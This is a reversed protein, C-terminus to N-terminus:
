KILVGEGVYFPEIEFIDKFENKLYKKLIVKHPSFKDSVIFYKTDSLNEGLEKEDIIGFKQNGEKLEMFYYKSNSAQILFLGESIKNEDLFLEYNNFVLIKLNNVLALVKITAFSIRLGTWSGPGENIAIFDLQTLKVSNNQLIKKIGPVLHKLHGRNENFIESHVEGNLFLNIVLRDEHSSDIALYKLKEKM